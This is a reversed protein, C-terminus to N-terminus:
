QLRRASVSNGTSHETNQSSYQKQVTLYKTWTGNTHDFIIKGLKTLVENENLKTIFDKLSSMPLIVYM